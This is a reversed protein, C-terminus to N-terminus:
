VNPNKDLIMKIELLSSLVKMNEESEEPNWGHLIYNSVHQVGLLLIVKLQSVLAARDDAGIRFENLFMIILTEWIEERPSWGHHVLQSAHIHLRLEFGEPAKLSDDAAWHKASLM